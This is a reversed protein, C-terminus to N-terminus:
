SDFDLGDEELTIEGIPNTFLIKGLNLPLTPSALVIIM